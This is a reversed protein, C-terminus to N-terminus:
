ILKDLQVLFKVNIDEEGLSQIVCSAHSYVQALLCLSITAMPSHRWSAYLSQFLDKGCSDLLSKKLLSRLEDLDASTLLFLNLAQVMTSAFDLDSESELITSFERYVKEAGLLVSDVSRLKSGLSGNDEGTGAVDGGRRWRGASNAKSAHGRVGRPWAGGPSATATTTM